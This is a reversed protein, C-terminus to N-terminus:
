EDPSRAADQGPNAERYEFYKIFRFYGASILAGLFPGVWYIWHSRVLDTAQEVQYRLPESVIRCLEECCCFAWFKSSSEFVSRHLLCGRARGRITDSRNRNTCYLHGEIEWRGVDPHHFHPACHPVDRHFGRSRHFCRAGTDNARNIYARSVHMLRTCRRVNRRSTPRSVILMDNATCREHMEELGKGFVHGSDMSAQRCHM